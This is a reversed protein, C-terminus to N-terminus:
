VTDGDKGGNKELSEILEMMATKTEESMDSDEIDKKLMNVAKSTLEERTMLVADVLDDAFEKLRDAIDMDCEEAAERINGAMSNVIAITESLLDGLNGRILIRPGDVKIM